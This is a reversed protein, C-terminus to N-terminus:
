NQLARLVDALEDEWPRMAGLQGTTKTLDLVSYQPRRAPRPFDATSCPRVTCAENVAAVVVRALEFWTCDGGDTVHFVGDLAPAQAGREMLALSARALHEASTPRGRQDNVVALESRERSLRAIARVFNNAWPAYLWSTRVLLHPAGIALVLKEGAAKSRGYANLPAHPADTPYPTSATGSFVYDTSYHVLTAGVERCRQALWGVGTGNVATAQVEAGEAADVNTWAACNVVWAHGRAVARGISARDTLDLAGRDALDHEIGREELLARWARGLMGGPSVLLVRGALTM